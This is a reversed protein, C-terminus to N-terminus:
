TCVWDDNLIEMQGIFCNIQKKAEEKTDYKACYDNLNTDGGYGCDKWQGKIVTIGWIKHPKIWKQIKYYGYKNKCIRYNM